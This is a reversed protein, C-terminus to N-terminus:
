ARWQERQRSQQALLHVVLGFLELAVAARPDLGRRAPEGPTPSEHHRGPDLHELAQLALAVGIEDVPELDRAVIPAVDIDTQFPVPDIRRDRQRAVHQRV